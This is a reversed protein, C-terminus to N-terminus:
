SVQHGPRTRIADHRVGHLHHSPHRLGVQHLQMRRHEVNQATRLVHGLRISQIIELVDIMHRHKHGIMRASTVATQEGLRVSFPGLHFQVPEVPLQMAIAHGRPCERPLIARQAAIVAPHNMPLSDLLRIGISLTRIFGRIPVQIAYCCNPSSRRVM